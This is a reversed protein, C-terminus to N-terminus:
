TNKHLYEDIAKKVGADSFYEYGGPCSLALIVVEEESLSVEYITKEIMPIISSLRSGAKIKSQHSLRHLVRDFLDADETRISVLYSKLEQM